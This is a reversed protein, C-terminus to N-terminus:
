LVSIRIQCLILAKLSDQPVISLITEGAQIVGDASVQPDFVVGSVPAVVTQYQLLLEADKLEKSM